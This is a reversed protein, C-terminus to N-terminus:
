ERVIKVQTAVQGEADKPCYVDAGASNRVTVTMPEGRGQFAIRVGPSDEDGLHAKGREILYRRGSQDALAVRAGTQRDFALAFQRQLPLSRGNTSIYGVEFAMSRGLGRQLGRQGPMQHQCRKMGTVRRRRQTVQTAGDVIEDAIRVLAYINAVQTRVPEALLRSALGFSTSYERIVVSAARESVRTYLDIRNM